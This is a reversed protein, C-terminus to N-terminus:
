ENIKLEIIRITKKSVTDEQNINNNAENLFPTCQYVGSFEKKVM